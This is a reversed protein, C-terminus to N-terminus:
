VDIVNMGFQTNNMGRATYRTSSVYITQDRLEFQCGFVGKQLLFALFQTMIEYNGELENTHSLFDIICEVYM